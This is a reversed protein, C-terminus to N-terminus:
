VHDFSLKQEFPPTLLGSHWVDLFGAPHGGLCPAKLWSFLGLSCSTPHSPATSIVKLTHVDLEVNKLLKSTKEKSDVIGCFYTGVLLGLDSESKGLWRRGTRLRKTWTVDAPVPLHGGVGRSGESRGVAEAAEAHPTPSRSRTVPAQLSPFCCLTGHHHSSPEEKKTLNEIQIQVDDM